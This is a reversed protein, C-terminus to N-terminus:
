GIVSPGNLALVNKVEEPKQMVAITLDHFLLLYNGYDAQQYQDNARYGVKYILWIIPTCSFISLLVITDRSTSTRRRAVRAFFCDITLNLIIVV